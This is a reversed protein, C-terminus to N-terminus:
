SVSRAAISVDRFNELNEELTKNEDYPCFEDWFNYDERFDAGTGGTSFTGGETSVLVTSEDLYEHIEELFAAIEVPEFREHHPSGFSIDFTVGNKQIVLEEGNEGLSFIGYHYTAYGQGMYPQYRLLYDQGEIEVAFLNNWGAHSTSATDLWLVQKGKCVKLGWFSSQEITDANGELILIEPEGNHNFDYEEGIVEVFGGSSGVAEEPPVQDLIQVPPEADETQDQTVVVAASMDDAGCGTVLLGVLGM